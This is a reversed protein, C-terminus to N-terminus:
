VSSHHLPVISSVLVALGYKNFLKEVLASITPKTTPLQLLLNVIININEKHPHTTIISILTKIIDKRIEFCENKSCMCCKTEKEKVIISTKEFNRQAFEKVIYFEKQRLSAIEEDNGTGKPISINESTHNVANHNLANGYKEQIESSLDDFTSAKFSHLISLNDDFVSDLKNSNQDNTEGTTASSSISTENNSVFDLNSNKSNKQSLSKQNYVHTM